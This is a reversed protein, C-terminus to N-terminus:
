AYTQHGCHAGHVGGMEVMKSKGSDSKGTRRHCFCSRLLSLYLREFGCNEPVRVARGVSPWKAGAVAAGHDDTDRNRYPQRSFTTVGALTAGHDGGGARTSLVTTLASARAWRQRPMSSDFRNAVTRSRALASFILSGHTLRTSRKVSNDGFIVSALRGPRSGSESSRAFSKFGKGISHSLCSASKM